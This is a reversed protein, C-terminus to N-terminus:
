PVAGPILAGVDRLALAVDAWPDAEPEQGGAVAALRALYHEWGAQHFPATRPPLRRHALRVITDEGDPILSVEVETSQPPVAFVAEEWGWTWVIRRCPDVEVFQGLMTSADNIKIRCVGGPRPDVTADVGMWSVLRVPDTFYAFVTEPRAAVRVEHEISSTEDGM